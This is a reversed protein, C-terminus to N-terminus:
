EIRVLQHRIAYRVIGAVDSVGLRQCIQHRHTDVTKVGLDLRRAIAKTSLGEAVLRLVELQRPTLQEHQAPESPARLTVAASPSVYRRGARVERIAQALETPAADKVLSGLAGAAMSQQVYLPSAHMSLMLVRTRPCERAVRAAAEIGAPGEPMSIDLLLLDPDHLRVQEVAQRGDAAEALVRVEPIGRLLACLGARFLAHDDAVVIGVPTLHQTPM